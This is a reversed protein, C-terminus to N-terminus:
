NNLHKYIFRTAFGVYDNCHKGHKMLELCKLYNFENIFEKRFDEILYEKGLKELIFNTTLVVGCIGDISRPIPPEQKINLIENFTMYIANSCNSGSKHFNRAIVEYENM